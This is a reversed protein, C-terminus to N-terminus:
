YISWDTVDTGDDGWIQVNDVGWYWSDTGMNMWRIRIASQNAAAPLSYKEFRKSESSDDNVRPSIYPALDAVPTTRAALAYDGYSYATGDAVNTPDFTATPDINGEADFRVDEIDLLYALPLWTWSGYWDETDPNGGELAYELVGINDQNQMYNSGFTLIVNTIGSLNIAPSFLHAEQYANYSDSDSFASKGEYVPTSARHGGFVSMDQVSWTSLIEPASGGADSYDVATWGAPLEDIPASEFDETFLLKVGPPPSLSVAMPDSLASSVSNDDTYKVRVYVPVNPPFMTNPLTLDTIGPGTGTEHLLTGFSPDLSVEWASQAHASGTTSEFASGVLTVNDLFTPNAPNVSLTPTVPGGSPADTLEGVVFNDIGWYWSGGGGQFFRIMVHQQGGAMPREFLEQGKSSTQDDDIRGEIYQSIDVGELNAGVFDGYPYSLDDNLGYNWLFIESDSGIAAVDPSNVWYFIPLWVQNPDEPELNGQLTYEAFGINDQNQAYNSDFRIAIDQYNRLDYAPTYLYQAQIGGRKDSEAYVSKGSIVLPNNVRNTSISALSETTLVTWGECEMSKALNTTEGAAFSGDLPDTYNIQTWGTPVDFEPTSEFNETYIPEVFKVVSGVVFNDIGWYWSGGGGQFFRIQVNAQGGAMPLEFLEQGKSSNQDDDVRGQVYTDINISAIDAGIYDTCPYALDNNCGHNSFLANVDGASDTLWAEAVWYFIPLWIKNPDDNPLDGQLTYEAFGINDQNQTYNSDFKIAIDKQGSLDFVPTYLYQLQMGGRKDSEAYVSKGSFVMPDNVRNANISGLSEATLVTWGELESSKALNTTEGAVFSGDVPTTSNVQTWGEPLGFEPASEFDQSYIPQISALAPGALVAFCCLFYFISRSM